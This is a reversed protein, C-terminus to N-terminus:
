KLIGIYAAWPGVADKYQKGMVRYIQVIHAFDHVLWTSLLQRATVEGFEPHIGTLNLQEETLNLQKLEELNKLRIARFEDLLQVITKDLIHEQHGLRDFPIFTKDAQQNLIINLRPIWDTQEGFILHGLVEFPSWSEGGENNHLWDLENEKLCIELLDPTRELFSITQELSFSIM